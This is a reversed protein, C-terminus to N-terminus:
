TEEHEDDMVPTNHLIEIVHYANKTKEYAQGLFFSQVSKYAGYYKIASDIYIGLWCLYYQVTLLMTPDRYPHANQLKDNYGKLRDTSGLVGGNYFYYFLFTGGLLRLLDPPSKFISSTSHRATRATEEAQVLLKEKVEKKLPSAQKLLAKLTAPNSTQVAYELMPPTVKLAWLPIGKDLERWSFTAYSLSGSLIVLLLLRATARKKKM